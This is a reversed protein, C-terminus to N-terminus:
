PSIGRFYLSGVCSVSENEGRQEVLLGQERDRNEETNKEARPSGRIAKNDKRDSVPVATQIKNQMCITNDILSIHM